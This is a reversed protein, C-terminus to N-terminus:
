SVVVLEVREDPHDGLPVHRPGLEALQLERDPLLLELRQAVAVPEEVEVVGLQAVDLPLVPDGVPPREACIISRFVSM